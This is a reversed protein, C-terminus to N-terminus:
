FSLVSPSVQAIMGRQPKYLERTRPLLPRGPSFPPPDVKQDGFCDRIKTVRAVEHDKVDPILYHNSTKM